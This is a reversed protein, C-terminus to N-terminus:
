SIKRQKPWSLVVHRRGGWIYIKIGQSNLYILPFKFGENGFVWLLNKNIYISWSHRELLSVVVSSQICCNWMRSTYLYTELLSRYYARTWKTMKRKTFPTKAIEIISYKNESATPPFIAAPRYKLVSFIARNRKFGSVKRATM